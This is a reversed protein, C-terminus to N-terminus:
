GTGTMKQRVRAYMAIDEESVSPRARAAAAELDERTVVIRIQEESLRSFVSAPPQGTSEAGAGGM